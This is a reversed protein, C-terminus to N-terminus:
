NKPNAYHQGPRWVPANELKTKMDAFKKKTKDTGADEAAISVMQFIEDFLPDSIVKPM